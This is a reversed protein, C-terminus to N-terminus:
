GTYSPHRLWPSICESDYSEPDNSCNPWWVVVLPPSLPLCLINIDLMLTLDSTTM